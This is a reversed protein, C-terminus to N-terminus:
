FRRDDANAQPLLLMGCGAQRTRQTGNSCWFRLAEPIVTWPLDQGEASIKLKAVALREKPTASKSTPATQGALLRGFM